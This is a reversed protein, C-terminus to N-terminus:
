VLGCKHYLLQDLLPLDLVEAKRFCAHLRDTACVRDLRESSKLAFIM